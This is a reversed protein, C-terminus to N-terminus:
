RSRVFECGCSISASFGHAKKPMSALATIFCGCGVCLSMMALIRQSAM